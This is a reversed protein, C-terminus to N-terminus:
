KILNKYIEYYKKIFNEDFPGKKMKKMDILSSLESKIIINVEKPYRMIRRHYNYENRDLIKFSKDPFVRLDLDYDIYKLINDEIIYPSAINCYYFLGNSKIQAIINFWRNKYFFMIAPEKTKWTRGDKKTVLVKDNGLIIYDKNNELVLASEWTKYIMGNHKYCHIVLTDGKEIKM